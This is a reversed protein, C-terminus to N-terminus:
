AFTLLGGFLEGRRMKEGKKRTHSYIRGTYFTFPYLGSLVSQLSHICRDFNTSRMRIEAPDFKFQNLKLKQLYRERIERGLNMCQDKGVSTLTGTTAGGQLTM